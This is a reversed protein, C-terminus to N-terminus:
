LIRCKRSSKRYGSTPSLPVEPRTSSSTERNLFPTQIYPLPLIILFVTFACSGGESRRPHHYAEGHTLVRNWFRSPDVPSFINPAVTRGSFCVGISRVLRLRNVDPNHKLYQYITGNDCWQSVMAISSPSQVIGFLQSVNKHCLRHWAVVEAQLRQACQRSSSIVCWFLITRCVKLLKERVNQVMIQRL